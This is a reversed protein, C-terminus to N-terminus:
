AEGKIRERALALAEAVRVPATGGPADRAAISARV